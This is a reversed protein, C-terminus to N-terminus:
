IWTWVKRPCRREANEGGIADRESSFHSCVQLLLAGGGNQSAAGGNQAAAGSNRAATSQRPRKDGRGGGEEARRGGGGAERFRNRRERGGGRGGSEGGGGVSGGSAGNNAMIAQHREATLALALGKRGKRHKRRAEYIHEEKRCISDGLAQFDALHEVLLLLGQESLM